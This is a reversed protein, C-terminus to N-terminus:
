NRRRKEWDNRKRVGVACILGGIILFLFFAFYSQTLAALVFGGIFVLIGVLMWILSVDLQGTLRKM